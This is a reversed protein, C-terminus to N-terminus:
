AITVGNTSTVAAVTSSIAQFCLSEGVDGGSFTATTLDGPQFFAPGTITVTHAAAEASIVCVEPLGVYPSLDAPLTMVCPTAAGCDLTQRVNATVLAGDSSHAFPTTLQAIAQGQSDVTSLISTTTSELTSIRNMNSLSFGFGIGGLVLLTLVLLGWFWMWCNGVRWSSGWWQYYGAPDRPGYAYSTQQQYVPPQPQGYSYSHSHSERDMLFYTNGTAPDYYGQQAGDDAPMELDRDFRKLVTSTM